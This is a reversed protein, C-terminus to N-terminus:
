FGEVNRVTLVCDRNQLDVNEVHLIQWESGDTLVQMKDGRKIDPRYTITVTATDIVQVTDDIVTPTGGRTKVNALTVGELETYQAKKRGAGVDVMECKFFKVPTRRVSTDFYRQAM